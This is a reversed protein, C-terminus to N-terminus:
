NDQSLKFDIKTEEGERVLVHKTRKGLIEHWLAITYDGAPVDTLRFRGEEDTLTYYANDAIVLWAQMWDHVDSRVPFIEPRHFTMSAGSSNSPNSRSYFHLHHSIPDQNLFNVPNGLPVILVHPGFRCKRQTLTVGTDPTVSPKGGKVPGQIFVVANQIGNLRSLALEEPKSLHGCVATDVVIAKGPISPPLGQYSVIGLIAGGAFFIKKM